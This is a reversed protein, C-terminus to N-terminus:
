NVLILDVDFILVSNKPIDGVEKAGYGLTSPILLKIRGGEGILPIGYQWGLITYALNLGLTDGSDFVTGDTLYGDYNVEINSGYSPKISGGPREIVYFLGTSGYEVAGLSHSAIYDQIIERDKDAQSKTCSFAFLVMLTMLSLVVRKQFNM